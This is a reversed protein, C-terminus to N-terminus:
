AWEGEVGTLSPATVGTTVDGRAEKFTNHHLSVDPSTSKSFQFAPDCIRLRLTAYKSVVQVLSKRDFFLVCDIKMFVKTTKVLQFTVSLEPSPEKFVGLTKSKAAFSPKGTKRKKLSM